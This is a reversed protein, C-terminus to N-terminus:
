PPNPSRGGPQVADVDNRYEADAPGKVGVRLDNLVGVVAAQDAEELVDAAPRRRRL